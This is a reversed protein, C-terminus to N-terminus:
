SVLFIIGADGVTGMERVRLSIEGDAATDGAVRRGTMDVVEVIALLARALELTLGAGGPLSLNRTSGVRM